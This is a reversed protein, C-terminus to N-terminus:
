EDEVGSGCKKCLLTILSVPGGCKACPKDTEPALIENVTIDLKLEMEGVAKLNIFKKLCTLRGHNFHGEYELNRDDFATYFYVWGSFDECHVFEKTHMGELLQSKSQNLGDGNNSWDWSKSKYLCLDKALHYVDMDPWDEISKTQFVEGKVHDWEPDGNIEADSVIWDFMGM